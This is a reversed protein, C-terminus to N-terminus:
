MSEPASVGLLGLGNRVVQGVAASLGLRALTLARDETIVRHAKYYPHYLGALETLYYAVRHPERARAASAVVGPYQLLRKILSQEEPLRLPRFDVQDWPPLAIRQEAATRFLSAVRAHAYQVYFVPNDSSHRTAVALDFDLPGDHRRTLFTFRAADKGVEEILEEMLVFEGRRKSMRVPQGDRLLTVLQVILVDFSDAPHGLVEMAARMRPVHGHHDPGLFDIVMDMGGFKSFHHFGIDVAFYTLEGDSKRLVRDKDDGFATSRFWLAGDQEYTQGAASLAEIAREPLGAQRVDRDEHVWRDFTTGYAELVARQGRVMDEVARRGLRPLREAEPLAALARMAAPDADIWENALDVLYEGPYSNEPLEAREGLAQRLRVDVSRALADFQNGADNVYFQTEVGHGQSRLIRALADGVAAARANVIVLPGTPNASVFELLFRRDRGAESTGYADGAALVDKLAAACWDPDLFVNLFGPGAIELREVIGSKPFHTVIADAIQRPAKKAPRALTMAVNTAYDGHADDRPVEWAVDDPIPLGAGTLAERLAKALHQTVTDHM